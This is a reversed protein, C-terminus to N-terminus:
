DSKQRKQMATQRAKIAYQKAENAHNRAADYDGVDLEQSARELSSQAKALLEPATQKAGADIAAQITQRANSMEQVPPSIACAVSILLVFTFVFYSIRRLILSM